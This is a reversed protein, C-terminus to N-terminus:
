DDPLRMQRLYWGSLVVLLLYLLALLVYFRIDGWISPKHETLKGVLASLKDSLSVNAYFTKFAMDAFAPHGNILATGNPYLDGEVGGLNLADDPGSAPSDFFFYYTQGASDVLPAFRFSQWRWGRVEGADVTLSVLDQDAGQERLHFTAPQAHHWLPGYMLVDIRQLGSRPAIFTQGLQVGRILATAPSPRLQNVFQGEYGLLALARAGVLVLGTLTLLPWAVWFIRRVMARSFTPFLKLCLGNKHLHM